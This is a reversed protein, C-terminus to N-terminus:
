RNVLFYCFFMPFILLALIIKKRQFCLLFHSYIWKTKNQKKKKLNFSLSLFFILSSCLPFLFFFPFYYYYYYLLIDLLQKWPSAPSSAFFGIRWAFGSGLRHQDHDERASAAVSIREFDIVTAVVGSGQWNRDTQRCLNCCFSRFNVISEIKKKKIKKKQPSPTQRSLM